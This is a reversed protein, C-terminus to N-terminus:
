RRLLRRWARAVRDALFSARRQKPLAEVQARVFNSLEVRRQADAHDRWGDPAALESELTTLGLESRLKIELDRQALLEEWDSHAAASEARKRIQGRVPILMSRIRRM